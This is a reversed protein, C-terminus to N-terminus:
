GPLINEKKNVAYKSFVVRSLTHGGKGYTYWVDESLLLSGKGNIIEELVALIGYLRERSLVVTRMYYLILLLM